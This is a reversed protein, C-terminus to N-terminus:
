LRTGDHKPVGRLRVDLDRLAATDNEGAGSVTVPAKGRGPHPGRATVSFAGLYGDTRVVGPDFTGARRALPWAPRRAGRGLRSRPRQDHGPSLIAGTWASGPGCDRAKDRPSSRDSVVSSGGYTYPAWRD